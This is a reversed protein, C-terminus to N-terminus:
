SVASSERRVNLEGLTGEWKSWSKEVISKFGLSSFSSKLDISDYSSVERELLPDMFDIMHFKIIECYKKFSFFLESDPKIKKEFIEKEQLMRLATKSGIGKIGPINDSKDGVLAKWEVYDVPWTEVFSKKIPNWLSINESELLQIFDSDSSVITIDHGSYFSCISAIIDDAEFDKHRAITVPMSKLIRFIDKKQREFNEDYDRQRNGKYSGLLEYRHIPKGEMAMYCIDPKHRDIESKLCRFFGFVTANEGRLFGHRARHLMNYTDICLIKM